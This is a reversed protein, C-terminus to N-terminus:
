LNPVATTLLRAVLPACTSKPSERQGIKQREDRDAKGGLDDIAREAHGEPHNGVGQQDAEANRRGRSGGADVRDFGERGANRADAVDGMAVDVPLQKAPEGERAHDAGRQAGIQQRM